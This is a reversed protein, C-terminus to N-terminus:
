GAVLASNLFWRPFEANALVFRYGSTHLSHPVVTPPFRNLQAESMFSSLLLWLLPVAFLVAVPAMALHWGSPRRWRPRRGPRVPEAAAAVRARTPAAATVTDGQESRM